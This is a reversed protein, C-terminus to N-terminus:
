DHFYDPRRSPQEHGRLRRQGMWQLWLNFRFHLHLQLLASLCHEPLTGVVDSHDVIRNGVLTHSVNSTQHCPLFLLLMKLCFKHFSLSAWMEM